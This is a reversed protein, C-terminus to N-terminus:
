LIIICLLPDCLCVCSSCSVYHNYPKRPSKTATCVACFLTVCVPPVPFATITPSPPRSQHRVCQVFSGCPLPPMNCRCPPYQCKATCTRRLLTSPLDHAHSTRGLPILPRIQGKGFRGTTRPLWKQMLNWKRAFLCVGVWVFVGVGVCVCDCKCM